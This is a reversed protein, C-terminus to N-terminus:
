CKGQHLTMDWKTIKSEVVGWQEPSSWDSQMDGFTGNEFSVFVADVDAVYV